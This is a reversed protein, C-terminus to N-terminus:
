QQATNPLESALRFVVLPAADNGLRLAVASLSLFAGDGTRHRFEVTAESAFGEAVNLFASYVAAMDHEQINDFFRGGALEGAEFSLLKLAAESECLVIGGRNVVIVASTGPQPASTRDNRLLATVLAIRWSTAVQDAAELHRAFDPPTPDYCNETAHFIHPMETM